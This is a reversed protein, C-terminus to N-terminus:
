RSSPIPTSRTFNLPPQNPKEVGSVAANMVCEDPAEDDTKTQVLARVEQRTAQTLTTYKHQKEWVASLSANIQGARISRWRYDGQQHAATM